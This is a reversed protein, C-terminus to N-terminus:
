KSPEYPDRNNTRYKPVSRSGEKMSIMTVEPDYMGTFLVINLVNDSNLPAPWLVFLKFFASVSTVAM